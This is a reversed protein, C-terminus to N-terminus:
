DALYGLAKLREIIEEDLESPIPTPDGRAPGTEYTPVTEPPRTTGTLQALVDGQMDRAVPLGLAALITPALDLVDAGEIRSGPAVGGGAAAIIGPPASRYHTGSINPSDARSGTVFGHDSVVIVLCREDARDLLAALTDDVYAYYRAIAGRRERLEAEPIPESWEDPFRYKWFYHSVIDPGNLYYAVFDFSRGSLVHDLVRAYTEDRAFALLLEYWPDHLDAAVPRQETGPRFRAFFEAQLEDSEPIRDALEELLEPPHTQAPLEAGYGPVDFWLNMRTYQLRDSVVVGHVQEAPWTTWWGVVAVERELEGLINWLAKVRRSNSTYPVTHEIVGDPTKGFGTIGHAAPLKGTAVSAWIIPSYTPALTPPLTALEGSVGRDIFRALNPLAGEDILPGLVKWDVGDLGILIVREVDRRSEGACAAFLLGFLSLLVPRIKNM